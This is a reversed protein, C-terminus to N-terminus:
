SHGHDDQPDEEEAADIRRRAADMVPGFVEEGAYKVGAHHTYVGEGDLPGGDIGFRLNGDDNRDDDGDLYSAQETFVVDTIEIRDNDCYIEQITCGHMSVILRARPRRAGQLQMDEGENPCGSTGCIPIGIEAIDGQTSQQTELSEPCRWIRPGEAVAPPRMWDPKAEDAIYAMAGCKPCEGAPIEEGPCLREHADRIGNIDKVAGTWDCNSCCVPAEEGRDLHARAQGRLNLEM